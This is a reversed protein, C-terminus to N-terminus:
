KDLPIPKKKAKKKSKLKTMLSSCGRQVFLMKEKRDEHM